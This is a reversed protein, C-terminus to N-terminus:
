SQNISLEKDNKAKIEKYNEVAINALCILNDMIVGMEERTLESSLKQKDM